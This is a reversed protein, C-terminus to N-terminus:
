AITPNWGDLHNKVQNGVEYQDITTQAHELPLRAVDCAYSKKVKGKLIAQVAVYAHDCGVDALVQGDIWDVIAGLRKNIM